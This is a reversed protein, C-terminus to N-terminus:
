RASGFGYAFGLQVGFAGPKGPVFHISAVDPARNVAYWSLEAQLRLGGAEGPDLSGGFSPTLLLGPATLDTTQSLGLWLVDGHSAWSALVALEDAAWVAKSAEPDKAPGLANNAFFLRDRITIAPVAGRQETAMWGVDGHLAVVGFPLGTLNLGYGLDLPRGSVRTLGSRGAVVANPLPIPAGFLELMPGGLVLGVEHQGPELPRAGSLTGCAVLSLPLLSRWAM